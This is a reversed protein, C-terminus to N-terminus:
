QGRAVSSYIISEEENEQQRAPSSEKPRKTKFNITSYSVEEEQSLATQPLNKVEATTVVEDGEAAETKRGTGNEQHPSDAKRRRICIIM